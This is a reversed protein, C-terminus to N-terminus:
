VAFAHRERIASMAARHCISATGTRSSDCTLSSAVPASPFDVIQFAVKAEAPLRAHFVKVQEPLRRFSEAGKPTV